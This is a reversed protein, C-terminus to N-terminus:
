QPVSRDSTNLATGSEDMEPEALLTLLIPDLLRRKLGLKQNMASTVRKVLRTRPFSLAEM